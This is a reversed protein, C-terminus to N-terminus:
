GGVGCWVKFSRVGDYMRLVLVMNSACKLWDLVVFAGLLVAWQGRGCVFACVFCFRVSRGLGVNAGDGEGWCGLRM